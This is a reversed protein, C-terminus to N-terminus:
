VGNENQGFLRQELQQRAGTIYTSAERLYRHLDDIPEPRDEGLAEQEEETLEPYESYKISIAAGTLAVFAELGKLMDLDFVSDQADELPQDLIKNEESM